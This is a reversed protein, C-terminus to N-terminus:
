YGPNQALSGGSADIQAQPIPFITRFDESVPKEWWADTYKGFRILDTRRASEQFMERGREALFEDADISSYESVGARARLVNVDALGVNWDGAMRSMAEARVLYLEGLRVIPYDNNMDPRGFQQFSFKGARAGAERLSNPQLENIAPTYNLVLNGDDSAFDLIASGGFDLQEGVIFSAAKRADGDEYSNYFEELSAYGNWPQAELNWTFQSAYHLNMQSFNMGGGSVEDFNITFIHEPNGDNNPAFVAAYGELMEPDAAVDPRKGLNAVACGAGCLSYAGSDIVYAAAAAAKDYMATGTYTEANLYLKSIIGLAAYININYASPDTGLSSGSLDMSNNIESVGLAELLQEEVFTFVEARTSQPVDTGTETVVKVNGFSDMLRMYFYARLAQMQATQALDLTGGNLLDNITTIANYQGTWGNNFFGNSATYSHNHLEVLVGGDFWDGGKAAICMEDTTLEQLSYYSSHNASGSNRLEAYAATLIGSGGGSGGVDIGTVSVDTTIDGVLTEELDTCANILVLSFPLLLYKYIKKM